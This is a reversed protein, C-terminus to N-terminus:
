RWGGTASMFEARDAAARALLAVRGLEGGLHHMAYGRCVQVDLGAVDLARWSLYDDAYFHIPLCPGILDWTARSMFPFPSSLCQTGDPVDSLILRGDGMHGCELLTGDPNTIRPSPWVEARAALMAATLAGPELLIDDAGLMLYGGDAEAVGANWAGGITPYDHPVIVELYDASGFDNAAVERLRALTMDLLDERGEITPVIASILTASVQDGGRGRM